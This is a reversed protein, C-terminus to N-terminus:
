GPSLGLFFIIQVPLRRTTLSFSIELGNAPNTHEDGCAPLTSLLTGRSPGCFSKYIVASEATHGAKKLELFIYVIRPM